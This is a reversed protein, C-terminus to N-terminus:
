GRGRGKNFGFVYSTLGIFFGLGVLLNTFIKLVRYPSRINKLLTIAAIALFPVFFYYFLQTKLSTLSLVCLVFYGAKFNVTATEKIKEALRNSERFYEKLYLLSTRGYWKSQKYLAGLTEVTHGGLTVNPVHVSMLGNKKIYKRIRMALIRDEGFGITPFGGFKLAVNRRFVANTIVSTNEYGVIKEVLTDEKIEARTSVNVVKPNDFPKETMQIFDNSFIVSDGGLICVLDADTYQIGQNWANAPCKHDGAENLVKAGKKRAIEVTGDKSGGDVIIIEKEKYQNKNITDLLAGITGAENLTAIVFAIKKM